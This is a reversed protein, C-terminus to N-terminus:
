RRVGKSLEEVSDVLAAFTQSRPALTHKELCAGCVWNGCMCGYLKSDVPIEDGCFDCVPCVQINPSDMDDYTCNCCLEGNCDPGHDSEEYEDHDHPKITRVWKPGHIETPM